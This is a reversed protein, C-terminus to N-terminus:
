VEYHEKLGDLDKQLIAKREPMDVEGGLKIADYSAMFISIIFISETRLTLRKSLSGTQTFFM